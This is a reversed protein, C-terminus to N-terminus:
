SCSGWLVVAIFWWGYFMGSEEFVILDSLDLCCSCVWLLLLIIGLHRKVYIYSMHNLEHFCLELKLLSTEWSPLIMSVCSLLLFCESLNKQYLFIAIILFICYNFNHTVVKQQGTCDMYVFTM